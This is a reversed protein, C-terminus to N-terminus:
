PTTYFKTGAPITIHVNSEDGWCAMTNDMQLGCYTALKARISKLKLGKPQPHFREPSSNYVKTGWCVPEGDLKVACTNWSAVAVDRVKGLDPPVDTTGQINDGWCVLTDDMKIACAHGTGMTIDDNDARTNGHYIAAVLKAKLGEPPQPAKTGWCYVSDDTKIVCNYFTAVAISKARLDAPATLQPGKGPGNGWCKVTNDKNVACAHDYGIGFHIPDLDNGGNPPYFTQKHSWCSMKRASGPPMLVCCGNHACNIQDVEAARVDAPPMNRPDGTGFCRVKKNELIHCAHYYGLGIGRSVLLQTLGDGIPTGMGPDPDVAPGGDPAPSAEPKGADSSGGSGASPGSGGSGGSGASPGGSGGSTTSAGGSGATSGGTGATSSGGSGASSGGRGAASGGSGGSGTANGGGDGPAPQCGYALVLLVSVLGLRPISM